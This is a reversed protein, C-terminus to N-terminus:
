LMKIIPGGPAPLVSIAFHTGVIMGSMVKSSAISTVLICEIAPTSSGSLPITVWRGNRVGCWVTVGGASM